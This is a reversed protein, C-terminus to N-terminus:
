IETANGSCKRFKGKRFEYQKSACGERLADGVKDAGHKMALDKFHEIACEGHEDLRASIQKHVHAKMAEAGDVHAEPHSAYKAPDYFYKHKGSKKDTIRKHYLGGKPEAKSLTMRAAERINAAHHQAVERIAADQAAPSGYRGLMEVKRRLYFQVIESRSMSKNLGAIPAGEKGRYSVSTKIKTRGMQADTPNATNLGEAPKAPTVPAPATTDKSKMADDDTDDEGASEPLYESPGKGLKEGKLKRAHERDAKRQLTLARKAAPDAKVKGGGADMAEGLKAKRLEDVTVVVCTQGESSGSKQMRSRYYSMARQFLVNRLVPETKDMIMKDHMAKRVVVENSAGKLGGILKVWSSETAPDMGLGKVVAQPTLRPENHEMLRKATLKADPAPTSAEKVARMGAPDPVQGPIRGNRFQPPIVFM